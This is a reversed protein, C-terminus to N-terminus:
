MESTTFYIYIFNKKSKKKKKKKKKKIQRIIIQLVEHFRLNCVFKGPM